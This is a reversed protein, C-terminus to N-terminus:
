ISHFSHLIQQCHLQPPAALFRGVGVAETHVALALRPLLFFLGQGMLEAAPGIHRLNARGALIRHKHGSLHTACDKCNSNYSTVLHHQSQSTQMFSVKDTPGVPRLVTLLFNHPPQQASAKATPQLVALYVQCGVSRVSQNSSMGYCSNCTRCSSQM